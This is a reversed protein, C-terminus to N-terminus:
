LLVVEIVSWLVMAIVLGFFLAVAWEMLERDRKKNM